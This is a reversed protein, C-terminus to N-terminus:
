ASLGFMLWVTVAGGFVIRAYEVAGDLAAFIPECFIGLTLMFLTAMALAVLCGHWAWAQAGARDGAGLARSIASTVGGGIAGGALMQMLSQFPFVLALSALATTGLQGVVLADISTVVTMMLVALLNPTALRWLMTAIPAELLLWLRPSPTQEYTRYTFM